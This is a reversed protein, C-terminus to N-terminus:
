HGAAHEAGGEPEGSVVRRLAGGDARVLLAGDADM